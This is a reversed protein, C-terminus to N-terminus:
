DHSQTQDGIMYIKVSGQNKNLFDIAGGINSQPANDGGMIDLAIQIM